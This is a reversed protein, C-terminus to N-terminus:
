KKLRVTASFVSDTFKLSLVYGNTACLKKVIWLGLGTGRIGRSNPARYYKKTLEDISAQPLEALENKVTVRLGDSGDIKVQVRPTSAYKRANTLLDNIIVELALKNGVFDVSGSSTLELVRVDVYLLDSARWQDHILKALYVQESGNFDTSVRGMLEVKDVVNQIHNLQVDMQERVASDVVAFRLTTLPTKIEHSLMSLFASQEALDRALKENTLHFDTAKKAMHQQRRQLILTRMWLVHGLMIITVLSYFYLANAQMGSGFGLRSLASFVVLLMFFTYPGKIKKFILGQIHDKQRERPVFLILVIGSLATASAAIFLAVGKDVFFYIPLNIFSVLVISLCFGSLWSISKMDRLLLWHFNVGTVVVIIVFVGLLRGNLLNLHPWISPIIHSASLLLLSWVLQHLAFALFLTQKLWVGAILSLCAALLIIFLVSGKLVLGLTHQSTIQENSPYTLGINLNHMARAELRATAAGSPVEFILKDVDYYHDLDQAAVGAGKVQRNIVQGDQDFFDVVVRELYVPSVSIHQADITSKFWLKFAVSQRTPGAEVRHGPQWLLADDPVNFDADHLVWYADVGQVDLHKKQLLNQGGYFLTLLMIIVLLPRVETYYRKYNM